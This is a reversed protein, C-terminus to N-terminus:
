IKVFIFHLYNKYCLNLHIEQDEVPQSSGHQWILLSMVPSHRPSTHLTRQRGIALRRSTWSPYVKQWPSSLFLPVVLLHVIM